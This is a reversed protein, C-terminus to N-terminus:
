RLNRLKNFLLRGRHYIQYWTPHYIFDYAGPSVIRRGGFGKKFRTIGDWHIQSNDKPAIGWFDYVLRGSAKAQRVSEWQLLSPAMLKRYNHDSGGHLYTCNQGFNVLLNAAIFVGDHEALALTGARNNILTKWLLTYYNDSHVSIQNHGATLKILALFHGIDEKEQSFKIQVGNKKALSINYRTKPHMQALIDAENKELDLIWTDRPHIDKSKKLKPINIDASPELRCFIEERKKTAICIDRVKSLLLKSIEQKKEEGIKGFFIPGKPTTLYSLGMPLTTEYFLALALINNEEKVVVQWYKKGQQKLFDKWISSQLFSGSIFNESLLYDYNEKQDVIINM